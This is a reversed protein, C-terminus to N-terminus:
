RLLAAYMNIIRGGDLAAMMGGIALFSGFPLRTAAAAKGRALLVVAYATAMLVGAFLALVAPWFGLFAAIMALLKVDGLGMGERRRVAQYIWRVALLILAAGLIAAVRSFILYEPGTLFVNGYDTVGGPSTLHISDKSLLVQDETPGLFAARFCVSLLGILIGWLTFANPLLGAEWDMVMLGILLFGFIAFVLYTVGVELRSVGPSYALRMLGWHLTYAFFAAYAIEVLPYRRSITHGCSRCRGRLFVFSVVPINDYWRIPTRCQPCRSRPHVVSEGRPIRTICVNLFSGFLLGLGFGILEFGFFSV